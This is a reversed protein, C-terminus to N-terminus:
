LQVLRYNPYFYALLEEASWGQAALQNAQQQCLGVLHGRGRGEFRWHEGARVIRYENSPITNWGYVRNIRLRFAEAQLRETDVSIDRSAQSDRSLKNFKGFVAELSHHSLSTKWVNGLAMSVPLQRPEVRGPAEWFHGVGYVASGCEAHFLVDALRNSQDKLVLGRTTAAYGEISGVFDNYGIFVQHYALDSLTQRLSKQLAYTRALVAQARIMEPEAGAGLEGIVVGAVYTELPTHSVIRYEGEVGQWRIDLSGRYSRTEVDNVTITILEDPAASLHFPKSRQPTLLFERTRTEVRVTKPHFKSLVNITLTDVVDEAYAMTSVLLLVFFGCKSM